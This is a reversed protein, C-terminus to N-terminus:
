QSREFGFFLVNFTFVNARNKGALGAPKHSAPM